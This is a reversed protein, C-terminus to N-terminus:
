GGHKALLYCLWIPYAIFIIFFQLILGNVKGLVRTLFKVEYHTSSQLELYAVLYFIQAFAVRDVIVTRSRVAHNSNVSSVAQENCNNKRSFILVLVYLSIRQHHSVSRCLLKDALVEDRSNFVFVTVQLRDVEVVVVSIIECKVRNVSNGVLRGVLQSHDM